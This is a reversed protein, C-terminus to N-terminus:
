ESLKAGCKNCFASENSIEAGCEPCVSINKIGRLKSRMEEIEKYKADIAECNEHITEDPEEGSKYSEYVCRGIERMLKSVEGEADSLAFKIKTSEFIESSKSKVSEAVNSITEKFDSIEM